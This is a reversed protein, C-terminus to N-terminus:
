TKLVCFLDSRIETQVATFRSDGPAIQKGTDAPWM